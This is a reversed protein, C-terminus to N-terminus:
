HYTYSINTHKNQRKKNLIEIGKNVVKIKHQAYTSNHPLKKLDSLINELLQLKNMLEDNEM